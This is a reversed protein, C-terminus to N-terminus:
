ADSEPKPPFFLSRRTVLPWLLLALGVLFLFLWVTAATPRDIEYKTRPGMFYALAAYGLFLVYMMTWLAACWWGWRQLRVLGVVTAFAFVVIVGFVMIDTRETFSFMRLMFLITELVVAAAAYVPWKSPKDSDGTSGQPEDTQHQDEGM